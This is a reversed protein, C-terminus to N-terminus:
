ESELLLNTTQPVSGRLIDEKAGSWLQKAVNCLYHNKEQKALFIRIIHPKFANFILFKSIIKVFVSLYPNAGM